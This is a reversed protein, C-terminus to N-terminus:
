IKDPISKTVKFSSCELFFIQDSGDTAILSDNNQGFTSLGWGERLESPKQLTGLISLNNFNFKYVVNEQWTLQYVINECKAIGEGFIKDPLRTKQIVKMSPYELKAIVSEKYLGGSEVVTHEDAFFLGQTYFIESKKYVAVQNWVGLKPKTPKVSNSNEKPSTILSIIVILTTFLLIYHLIM